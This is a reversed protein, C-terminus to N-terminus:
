KKSRAIMKSITLKMMAKVEKNEESQIREKLKEIQNIANLKMLSISSQKRIDPEKHNLKSALLNIDWEEEHLSGILKIAEIQVEYSSDNLANSLLNKADKDFLCQIQEGLAGIAAARVKANTSQAAKKLAKAGNAGVFSLGWSALGCQMESSNPSDLVKILYKVAEAGFTAMSGASSGQVVPDKDNLLAELLYPLSAPDGVLRLTKAAARRANINKSKILVRSLEPLVEKGILGLSESFTRRLMGRNDSLGAIIKKILDKDALLRERQTLIKKLENALHTAEEKSLITNEDFTKQSSKEKM